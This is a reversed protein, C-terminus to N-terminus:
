KRRLKATLNGPELATHRFPNCSPPLPVRAMYPFSAEVLIDFLGNM